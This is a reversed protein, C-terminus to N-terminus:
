TNCKLTSEGLQSNGMSPKTEIDMNTFWQQTFDKYFPCNPNNHTLYAYKSFQCHLLFLFNNTYM